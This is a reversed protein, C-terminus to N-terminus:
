VPKWHRGGDDSRLLKAGHYLLAFVRTNSAWSTAMVDDEDDLFLTNKWRHGGDVTRALGGRDTVLLGVRDDRFDLSSVHGNADIVGPCRPRFHV